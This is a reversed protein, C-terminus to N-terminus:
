MSQLLTRLEAKTLTVNKKFTIRDGRILYPLTEDPEGRTLKAKREQDALWAKQESTTRLHDGCFVQKAQESTMSRVDVRLTDNENVLLEVPEGELVRKQQAYPLRKIQERYPIGDSILLRPHVQHRGIAELHSWIRESFEPLAARFEKFREPNEDIAKVYIEGARLLGDRAGNYADRFAVVYEPWQALSESAQDHVMMEQM